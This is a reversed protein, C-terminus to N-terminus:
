TMQYPSRKKRQSKFFRSSGYSSRHSKWFCNVYRANFRVASFLCTTLPTPLHKKAPMWSSCLNSIQKCLGNRNEKWQSWLVHSFSCGETSKLSYVAHLNMVYWQGVLPFYWLALSLVLTFPLTGCYSKDNIGWQVLLSKELSSSNPNIGDCLSLTSQSKVSKM